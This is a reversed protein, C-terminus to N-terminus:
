TVGEVSEELDLLREQEALREPLEEDFRDLGALTGLVKHTRYSLWTYRIPRYRDETDLVEGIRDPLVPRVASGPTAGDEQTYATYPGGATPFPPDVAPNFVRSGVTTDPVLSDLRQDLIWFRRDHMSLVSASNLYPSTDVEGVLSLIYANTLVGKGDLFDTPSGLDHIHLDRQFVFYNGSRDGSLLSKLLQLFSLLRERHMLVLDIAEDSFLNSPRIIQYSFPRLSYFDSTYTGGVRVNTPRLAMQAETGSTLNSDSVTPYVTYGMDTLFGDPFVVDAGDPGTYTTVESVELHPPTAGDPVVATVRYWGRNDDLVTPGGTIHGVRGTIGTDGLPFAGTEPTTTDPSTGFPDVIVIDGVRVGLDGFDTGGAPANLDDYINNTETLPVYGGEETTDDAFTRHVVQDTILDLLQENSQEHPVPARRLYIEFRQGVFLTSQLGPPELRLTGSDVVASIVAEEVVDGFGDLLRFIDGPHINVDPDDFGGLNTGTYIRGDNWVDPARPSTGPIKTSEWDMTFTVPGVIGFQKDNTTYSGAPLRGRRIEYAYRLPMINRGIVGNVDHFRRIRRVEFSVGEPTLPPSPDYTEANRMGIEAPTLDHDEDVVHPGGVSLDYVPTPWSPELFIGAQAHFGPAGLGSALELESGPLLCNVQSVGIGASGVPINLAEWQLATLNWGWEVPVHPYLIRDETDTGPGFTWNNGETGAQVGVNGSTPSSTAEITPIGIANFTFAATGLVTPQRMTLWRAGEVASAGEYGVVNRSQIRGGVFPSVDMDAVRFGSVRQGPVVREAWAAEENGAGFYSTFTTGDAFRFGGVGTFSTATTNTYGAILVSERFVQLDASALDAVSVIIYLTGSTPFNDTSSVHLTGPGEWELVTPFLVPTWGQGSGATTALAVEKHTNSVNAEVAHHVLWTGAKNTAQHILDNSRDIVLVDGPEVNIVAGATTTIETVRDDYRDRIAIPISTNNKSETVATGQCIPGGGTDNTSSPVASFTLNSATLVTNGHGEFGMVRMTGREPSTGSVAAAWTGLVGGPRELFTYPNAVGNTDENVFSIAGGSTLVHNVTLETQMSTAGNLPHTLGRVGMHRFDIVENFTLRDQSIYATNSQGPTGISNLTDVSITYELGYLTQQLVGPIIVAYPIYWTNEIGPAGGFDFWSGVTKIQIFPGATPGDSSGFQIANPVAALTSSGGPTATVTNGRIVITSEVAGDPVIPGNVSLPDPRRILKIIIFNDPDAAWVDNFGGTAPANGLGDAFELPPGITSSFDLLTTVVATINETVQIGAVPNSQPPPYGAPDIFQLANDLTYRVASGTQNSAGSTPTTATVFRPPELSNSAVDGVTLIGRFSDEPTVAEDVEVFLIDYPRVDGEGLNVSGPLFDQITLLAAPPDAGAVPSIVRGDDGLVEDPYVYNTGDSATMVIALGASAEGFRDLETNGTRLYPLAYDGDDDQVLGQLAPFNFPNQPTYIFEVEGELSEQPLPSNQALIEKLGWTVGDSTSPLSLDFISGDQKVSLDFGLRFNDSQQAAQVLDASTIPDSPPVDFNVAAEVLVTDGQEIFDAALFGSTFGTGAYIIETGTIPNPGTTTDGDQFTIVCGYHVAEVFVGQWPGGPPSPHSSDLAKYFSGDPKGWAIQDGQVFGPIALDPDGAEVDPLDGGQSLFKTQDPYGTEPNIPIDRLLAPTAIICPQNIVGSPSGAIDFAGAPLGEDFYGWIRARARRRFVTANVVETIEGLAPNALQGIQKRATSQTTGGSPRGATYAGAYDGDAGIGPYTTLFAKAARPFLRSFFHMASMRAYTGTAQFRYYPPISPTKIKVPKNLGTLVVDDVDNLVSLAQSEVLRDLADVDLFTGDIVGEVINATAPEVVSDIETFVIDRNVDGANFVLAFVNRPNLLGTIEDEYGPPAYEKGRGLFFRFRGDRDGIFGGSITEVVQEFAVVVQNYFDLFVRAARDLDELHRRESLLGVRGQEWNDEGETTVVVAGSAPTRTTITEVAEEVAEALFSRLSVIRTYFTDPSAFTYTARIQGGLFGNEVTPLTNFRYQAFYRPTIVVGNEMYPGLVNQRTFSFYLTQGPNLPDQFPELLSISGDSGLTYDITAVLTRGPLDTGDADTEGFLVLEFPESPVAPGSGAFDRAGEDYVPRYSIRVTPELDVNLGTLVPSKLTVKTRAGDDSLDVQGVTYPIGGLELIHGPALGSTLDGRFTVAAQGRSVPEFPFQELPLTQWLGPAGDAPIPSPGDPDVELAIPRDTIVSFVDNGPSRSGVEVTTSPFIGVGTVDGKQTGDAEVRPPYYTLDSIYFCSEGVRLMQGVQFDGTRDGRLGFESLNTKIFFPPRYVPKTSADYTREGGNAEFVAYTVIVDIYDAVTKQTFIIRGKGELEAPYDVVFDSTGFNQEMPGIYVIPVFRQDVTKLDPNFYFVSSAAREAVEDRVFVPLFETLEEGVRRGELDAEFYTVEVAQGESIPTNFSFAGIMPSLGVDQGDETIMQEVLYVKTGDAGFTNIEDQGINVDGTYQNYEVTLAPVDAPDRFEEVYYVSSSALDTLVNSGFRLTGVPLSNWEATLYEVGDGSGPDPSLATVGFLDIGQVFITTGVQVAFAAVDFHDTGPVVLVDNALSGLIETALKYLSATNAETSEELGFRAALPRGSEVAPGLDGNLRDAEQEAASAPTTGLLTLVRAKFPEEQLHQFTEMVVDGLVSPDFVDRTYGRYVEWTLPRSNFSLFLPSVRLTTPSVVEQVIYSGLLVEEGSTIKLRYGPEIDSFDAANDTFLDTDSVNGAGGFLVRGGLAETLLAYGPGGGDPLIYEVGQELFEYRGGTEALYLGGGIGPANLLTEPIVNNTGLALANVPQQVVQTIDGDELWAFKGEGFRHLVDDYHELPKQFVQVDEGQAIVTTLEFFVGDDYGAVDQLPVQSLFVFPQFEPISEVLVKDELRDEAKYDAVPLSRDLNVPSRRLGLCMGSDPLWNPVGREVRWGPLLGLVTSGSLDKIGGAGWGIEASDLGELVVRGNLEFASDAPLAPAANAQLDAAVETATYFDQGTPATWTYPNGDLAFYLVETGEFRFVLRGKSVLRPRTTYTAPTLESQCFYVPDGDFLKRAGPGLAVQSGSGVTYEKAVYVEDAAVSRETPLDSSVQVVKLSNVVGNRSFIFTDGIGTEVQRVRGTSPDSLTDGGPRASAPTGPLDPIAGTEDPADLVGSKGLGRYISTSSFEDPLTLADPVYLTNDSGVVAPAGGAETLQVPAKLPQPTQNLAVGAYVVQEGLFHKDFSSSSTISKDLDDQSFKLKGTALSVGVEGELVTALSLADDSDVIIAVLERRSGFKILPYDTPGPIPAIFLPDPGLVGVIGDASSEFDQYVYWVTKGAHTDIFTPNFNLVGSGQGVVGDLDPNLTFDFDEIEDDPRLQIATAPFSLADPVEGLRIMAYSDSDLANGPLFSGVPLRSVRPTLLYTEDFLLRGLNKPGTGRYPEWKQTAGNFGFRTEYRDNRTWWFRSSALTYRVTIVQDGRDKSLGGDLVVLDASTLTVLGTQPNQSALAITFYPYPNTGARGLSPDESDLWGLDHYDDVDGRAVVVYTIQALSRNGDDAVVVRDAGDYYTDPEFEGPTTNTVPLDGTPITGTGDEVWWSADEVISINSTNQAWFLYETPSTGPAELVAARYQDAWADVLDPADSALDYVPPVERVDRVVGNTPEASTDSNTTATRPGRLVHGSFDFGM